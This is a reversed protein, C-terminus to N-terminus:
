GFVVQESYMAGVTKQSFGAVDSKADKKRRMKLVLIWVIPIHCQRRCWREKQRAAQFRSSKRPFLRLALFITNCKWGNERDEMENPNQRPDKSDVKDVGGIRDKVKWPEMWWWGVVFGGIRPPFSGLAVGAFCKEREREEM